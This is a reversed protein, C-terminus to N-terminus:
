GRGRSPIPDLATPLVANGNELEQGQPQRLAQMSMLVASALTKEAARGMREARSALEGALWQQESRVLAPPTPSPMHLRVIQAGSMAASSALAPIAAEGARPDLALDYFNLFDTRFLAAASRAIAAPVEDFALQQMGLLLQQHALVPEPTALAMDANAALAASFLQAIQSMNPVRGAPVLAVYRGQASHVTARFGHLLGHNNELIVVDPLRAALRELSRHEDAELADPLLLVQVSFPRESSLAHDYEALTTAGVAAVISVDFADQSGGHLLSNLTIDRLRFHEAAEQLCKYILLTPFRASEFAGILCDIEVQAAIAKVLELDFCSEDIFVNVPAGPPLALENLSDVVRIAPHDAYLAAQTNRVQGGPHFLVAQGGQRGHVYNLARAASGPGIHILVTSSSAELLAEGDYATRLSNTAAHVDTLVSESVWLKRSALASLSPLFDSLARMIM